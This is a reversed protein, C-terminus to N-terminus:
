LVEKYESNNFVVNFQGILEEAKEPDSEAARNGGRTLSCGM